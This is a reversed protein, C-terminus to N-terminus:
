RACYDRNRHLCETQIRRLGGAYYQGRDCINDPEEHEKAKGYYKLAVQYSLRVLM